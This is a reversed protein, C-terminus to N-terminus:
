DAAIAEALEGTPHIGAADIAALLEATDMIFRPMDYFKDLDDIM